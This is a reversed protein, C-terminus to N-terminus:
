RVLAAFIFYIENLISFNLYKGFRKPMSPTNLLIDISHMLVNRINTKFVDQSRKSSNLRQKSPTNEFKVTQNLPKEASIKNIECDVAKAPTKNQHIINTVCRIPIRSPKKRLPPLKVSKSNCYSAQVPLNNYYVRFKEMSNMYNEIFSHPEKKLISKLYQNKHLDSTSTAISIKDNSHKEYTQNNNLKIAASKTIKNLNKVNFKQYTVSPKPYASRPKDGDSWTINLNRKRNPHYAKRQKSVLTDLQYHPSHFNKPYTERIVQILTQYYNENNKHNKSFRHQRRETGCDSNPVKICQVGDVQELQSSSNNQLTQTNKIKKLIKLM